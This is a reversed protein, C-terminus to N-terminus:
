VREGECWAWVSQMAVAVLRMVDDLDVWEDAGCFNGALSGVGVAPANLLRIPFRIDSALHGEYSRPPKGVVAEMTQAVTRCWPHDWALRAPDACTGLRVVHAHFRRGPAHEVSSIAALDATIGSLIDTASRPEDFVVRIEAECHMPVTGGIEGASIRGINIECGKLECIRWRNVAAIIAELADGGEDFRATDPRGIEREPGRWGDIEITLDLVGRSAHKIESLGRGTEAPHLYLAAELRDLRTFVPLTGRTGGNKGHVSLVLPAPGGVKALAAAAVAAAAVGAKDDAAGLGYLRGGRIRSTHPPSTWGVSPHETDIHAFLAVDNTRAAPRAIVNILHVDSAAPICQADREFPSVGDVVLEITYGAAELYNALVSQAEAASEGHESAAAILASLLAILEPRREQALAAFTRM